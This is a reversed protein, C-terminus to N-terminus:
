LSTRRPSRPEQPERALEESIERGELRALIPALAESLKAGYFKTMQENTARDALEARSLGTGVDFAGLSDLWLAEEALMPDRRGLTLQELWAASAGSLFARKRREDIASLAWAVFLQREPLPGLNSSMNDGLCHDLATLGSDDMRDLLSPNRALVWKSLTRNGAPFCFHAFNHGENDTILLDGGAALILDADYAIQGHRAYSFLAWVSGTDNSPESFQAGLRLARAMLKRNIRLNNLAAELLIQAIPTNSQHMIRRWRASSLSDTRRRPGFRPRARGKSRQIYRHLSSKMSSPYGMRATKHPVNSRM